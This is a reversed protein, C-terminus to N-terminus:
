VRNPKGPNALTRFTISYRLADLAPISHEWESRAAGRLLYASRPQLVLSARQWGPGEKRRFRFTCGSALSVGIVEGFAPRDKHWGITAGAPYETILVHQLDAAVLSAFGAVIERLPLLFPPIDGAKQLGGGSFDYRWGFSVVRRRGLFGHFEFEKFPLPQLESILRMEETPSVLNEVYTFGQPLGSPQFLDQQARTPV